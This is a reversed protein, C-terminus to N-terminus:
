AMSFCCIHGEEGFCSLLFFLKRVHSTMTMGKGRSGRLYMFSGVGGWWLVTCLHVFMVPRM